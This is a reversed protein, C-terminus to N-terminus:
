RRWPSASSRPCRSGVAPPASCWTCACPSACSRSRQRPWGPLSPCTLLALVEGPWAPSPKLSSCSPPALLAFSPPAATSAHSSPVEWSPGPPIQGPRQTPLVLDAHPIACHSGQGQGHGGKRAEKRRETCPQTAETNLDPSPAGKSSGRHSCGLQAAWGSRDMRERHAALEVGEDPVRRHQLELGGLLTVQHRRPLEEEAGAEPDPHALVAGPLLVDGQGDELGYVARPTPSAGLAAHTPM